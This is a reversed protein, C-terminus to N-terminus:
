RGVGNRHRAPLVLKALESAITATAEPRARDLAVASMTKRQDADAMLGTIRSWLAGGTADAERLMVSAGAEELARANYEQHNEAATPLPILISPTGCALFESTFMAGARSVAMSALPLVGPVDDLYPRVSLWAEEATGGLEDIVDAYNEPGTVWLLQWSDPAELVGGRVERVAQTLLRNIAVSGQSGGVALVIERDESLGLETRVRIGDSASPQRLARIPNGTVLARERASAPLRDISEPYGVHIQEAWRALSRTVVGPWSNQEQLAFPIGRLVAVIGAPAAAYGGTLVVLEPHLGQFAMAVRGLSRALAPALGLNAAFSGREVGRIPVLLHPLGREPLIRREIGREAGVFFSRIGGLEADLAEALALAPYLHGGSGGGAFVVVPREHV